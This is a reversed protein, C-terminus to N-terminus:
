IGYKEEMQKQTKFKGSKIQKLSTEIQDLDDKTLIEDEEIMQQIMRKFLAEFTENPYNKFSALKEHTEKSVQVSTGNEM